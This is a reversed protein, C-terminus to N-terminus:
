SSAMRQQHQQNNNTAPRTFPASSEGGDDGDNEGWEVEIEKTHRRVSATKVALSRESVCFPASQRMNHTHSM